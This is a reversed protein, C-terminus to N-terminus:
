WSALPARLWTSPAVCVYLNSPDWSIQGQYGGASTSAPTFPQRIRISSGDIDLPALLDTINGIGVYGSDQRISMYTRSADVNTVQMFFAGYFSSELARLQFDPGSDTSRANLFLGNPALPDPSSIRVGAISLPGSGSNSLSGTTLSPFSASGDNAIYATRNGASDIIKIAEGTQNIGVRLLVAPVNDSNDWGTISVGSPPPPVMGLGIAVRNTAYEQLFILDNVSRDPNVRGIFFDNNKPTNSTDLGMSWKRVDGTNDANNWFVVLPQATSVGNTTQGIIDVSGRTRFIGNAQMQALAVGAPDVWDTLDAKQGTVAKLTLPIVSAASGGSAQVTNANTSNPGTVLNSGAAQAFSSGVLAVAAAGGLAAVVSGRSITSAAGSGSAVTTVAIDDRTPTM